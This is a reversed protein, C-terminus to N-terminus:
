LLIGEWTPGAVPGLNAVLSACEDSSLRTCDVKYYGFREPEAAGLRYMEGPSLIVTANQRTMSIQDKRFVIRPSAELMSSAGAWVFENEQPAIKVHLRVDVRAALDPANIPLYVAPCEFTNQVKANMKAKIDRWGAM